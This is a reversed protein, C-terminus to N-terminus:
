NIFDNDSRDACLEVMALMIQQQDVGMECLNTLVYAYKLAYPNKSFSFCLRDFVKVVRSHCELQTIAGPHTTLAEERVVPDQVAVSVLRVVQGQLYRRKDTMEHIQETLRQYEESVEVSGEESMGSGPLSFLRDRQAYLQRLPIDRSDWQQYHGFSSKDVPGQALKDGEDGQFCSVDEKPITTTDGFESVHSKKTEGRVIQVQKQLPETNLNEKDSDEMWNVSFEDGLCPMGKVDCYTGWSSEQSNAATVAYISQSSKLQGEFMSGSECAEM